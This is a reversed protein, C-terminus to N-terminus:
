LIELKKLSSALTDSFSTDLPHKHFKEKADIYEKTQCESELLKKLNIMLESFSHTFVDPFTEEFDYAFGREQNCYHEFDKAFGLIPRDLLLFDIWISSFDVLLVDVFQLVLNSETFEEQSLWVIHTMKETITPPKKNDYSHPRLGLIVDSKELYQNLGIWEEDCIQDFASDNKERFTPAYLVLKKNLTIDNLKNKQLQLFDDVPYSSKLLEYRPLGIIDIISKDVLFSKAIYGRDAESSAVMLDYLKANNKILQMKSEPVSLMQSEINKFAVGHWLGIIKRSKHKVSLHADRPVHSLIFVGATLIHYFTSWLNPELVKIGQNQLSEQIDIPMDGDKYVYVKHHRYKLLLDACVRLNGSFETNKKVVLIVKTAKKPFIKDFEAILEVKKARSRLKKPIKLSNM